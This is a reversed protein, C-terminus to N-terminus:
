FGLSYFVNKEQLFNNNVKRRRSMVLWALMYIDMLSSNLSIFGQISLLLSLSLYVDILSHIVVADDLPISNLCVFCGEGFYGPDNEDVAIGSERLEEKTLFGNAAIHNAKEETTGHFGALFWFGFVLILLCVFPSVYV